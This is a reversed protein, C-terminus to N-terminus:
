LWLRGQDLSEWDGCRVCSSTLPGVGPVGGPHRPVSEEGRDGGALRQVFEPNAAGGGSGAGRPDGSTCGPLVRRLLLFPAEVMLTLIRHFVEPPFEEIPAVHQIGANNVMIDATVALEALAATDTLDLV